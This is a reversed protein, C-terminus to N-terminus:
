INRQRDSLQRLTALADRLAADMDDDEPVASPAPAADVGKGDARPMDNEVVPPQYEIESGWDTGSLSALRSTDGEYEAADNFDAAPPTGLRFRFPPAAEHTETNGISTEAVSSSPKGLPIVQSSFAPTEAEPVAAVAVTGFSPKRDLAQERRRVLGQELRELLSGISLSDLAELSEPQKYAPHPAYADASVSVAQLTTQAARAVNTSYPDASTVSEIDAETEWERAVALESSDDFPPLPEEAIDAVPPPAFRLSPRVSSDTEAGGIEPVVPEPEAATAVPPAFAMSADLQLPMPQEDQFPATAPPLMTDALPVDLPAGLDSSAMIPARVPADPHQDGNRIRLRNIDAFDTVEGQAAETKGFRLTRLWGALKSGGFGTTPGADSAAGQAATGDPTASKNVATEFGMDDNEGRPLLALLAGATLTGIGASLALRATNGLPPAAAPLLEAIGYATVFGEIANMPIFSSGAAAAIGGGIAIATPYRVGASAAAQSGESESHERPTTM